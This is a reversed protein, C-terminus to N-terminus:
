GSIMWVGLTMLAVLSLKELLKNLIRKDGFAPILIVILFAIIFTFGPMTTELASVRGPLGIDIARQSFAVAAINMIEIFIFIKSYRLLENANLTAIGRAHPWLLPIIGFAVLGAHILIFGQIFPTTRFVYEELLYMLSLSISAILMLLFSLWRMQKNEDLLYLSASAFILIFVGCLELITLKEGFLFYSSIVVVIPVINWYASVIGAESYGLAQFYLVNSLQLFIGALIAAILVSTTTTNWIILPFIFPLPAFVVFITSIAGVIAGIWPRHFINRVCISDVVSITAFLLSSILGFVLWM